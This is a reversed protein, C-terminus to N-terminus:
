RNKPRGARRYRLNKKTIKELKKIVSFAAFPRGTQTCWELKDTAPKLGPNKLENKWEGASPLLDTYELFGTTNQGSVHFTASSWKWEWAENVLGAKVPNQEVYRIAIYTHQEDMMCSHFRDSFLHGTLKKRKNFYQAYKMNVVNFAKAMSDEKKPIAIFHVHNDMLCYAIISLSYKRSYEKILKLYYLRDGNSNFIKQNYNGKQTIHYPINKIVIRPIRPM